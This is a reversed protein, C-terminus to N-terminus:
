ASSDGSQGKRWGELSYRDWDRLLYLALFAALVPVGAVFLHNGIKALGYPDLLQRWTVAVSVAHILCAIGYTWRRFVGILLALALLLEPVGLVLTAGQPLIVGYFTQAIRIAADPVIFKEVSWQLLFIGLAARLIVLAIAIRREARSM